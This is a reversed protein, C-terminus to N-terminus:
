VNADKMAPSDILKGFDDFRSGHCPCDWSHETRNYHLSCGLHPCRKLSPFIMGAATEGLNVFLQKHFISRSTKFVELYHNNKGQIMDALIDAAAASTTMGWLNFGTATYVDPLTPSYRGIYPISDLTVCDQNSWRYKEKADPFHQRVFNEVANYGDGKKGTRHDGGGVILLDKYNRFFFSGSADVASCGLAPANEYAIVYSRQQYQKVFYLGRSNIFPFHTAVIVKNAYVKGKKTYATTKNLKYVFTNAYIDLEKAANNLFKLPHFQAMGPYVVADTTHFPLPPSTTYEAPFGLRNLTDAEEKLGDQGSVLYMVSPKNEFDCDYRASITRLREVADLNANLYQKAKETGYKKVINSYMVDHQATLVATTGKTIGEGPLHAELIVNSIGCEKLRLACLIGAMGGGIICVDTNIDNELEKYKGAEIGDTWLYRM